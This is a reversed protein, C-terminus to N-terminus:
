ALDQNLKSLRQNQSAIEGMAKENAATAAELESRTQNLVVTTKQLKGNAVSLDAEAAERSSTQQRLDARLTVIKEKVTILNLGCVALSGVIALLLATRLLM